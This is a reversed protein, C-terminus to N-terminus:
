ASSEDVLPEQPSRVLSQTPRRREELFREIRAADARDLHFLKAIGAEAAEADGDRAARAITTSEAPTANPVPLTALFQQRYRSFGDKVVPALLRVLFEAVKSNLVATLYHPDIRPAPILYYASHLPFYHGEDVAFRNDRAVDPVLIKTQKALDWLVQDHLDYWAKGWVKVCHRSELERRHAALYKRAKPFDKLDCLSSGGLPNFVYPVLVKLGSSEIRYAALDRGRVAPRLLEPEITQSIDPGLVYLGDRGTAPGASIRLTRSALTPHSARLRLALENLNEETFHWAPSSLVRASVERRSLVSVAGEATPQDACTLVTVDRQAGGREFVAVCPVTAANEFVKHSGFQALTRLASERRVYDRLARATQSVLFKDPTVFALRGGRRLIELAREIFVTYLDLRGGATQFRARFEEKSSAAIRTASVYPPNGVVLALRGRQVPPLADIAPDLLFDCAVVNQTFYREPLVGPSERLVAARVAARALKCAERDVDVGFLNAAVADLFASRAGPTQLDGLRGRLRAAIRAVARELFVGAGCAPELLPTSELPASATYGAQDLIFDVLHDPTYVQGKHRREDLSLGELHRGARAQTTQRGIDLM